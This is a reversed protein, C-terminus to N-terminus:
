ERAMSINALIADRQEVTVFLDSDNADNAPLSYNLAGM